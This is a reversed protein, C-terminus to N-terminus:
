CMLVQNQEVSKIKIDIYMSKYINEIEELSYNSNSVLNIYDCFINFMHIDDSNLEVINPRHREDDEFDINECSSTDKTLIVFELGELLFAEADRMYFINHEIQAIIYNMLFGEFYFITEKNNNNIYPKYLEKFSAFGAELSSQLEEFDDDYNTYTKKSIYKQDLLHFVLSHQLMEFLEDNLDTENAGSPENKKLYNLLENTTCKTEDGFGIYYIKKFCDVLKTLRKVNKKPENMKLEEIYNEFNLLCNM